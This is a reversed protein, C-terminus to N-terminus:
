ATRLRRLDGSKVIATRAVTASAMPALVAIKLTTSLTRRRGRGNASGSRRTHTASFFSLSLRGVKVVEASL